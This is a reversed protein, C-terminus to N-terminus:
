SRKLQAKIIESANEIIRQKIKSSSTEETYQKYIIKCKLKKRAIELEKFKKGIWDSGLLIYKINWHKLQDIDFFYYQVITNQVYKCSEVIELRENLPYVPLTHKYSQVLYDSSVGALVVGFQSAYKFLRVHGIHLLDFVGPVYIVDSKINTMYCLGWEIFIDM